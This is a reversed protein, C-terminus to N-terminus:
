HSNFKFKARGQPKTGVGQMPNQMTSTQRATESPSWLRMAVQKHSMRNKTPQDKLFVPEGKKKKSSCCCRRCCVFLLLFIGMAGSGAIIKNEMAWTKAKSFYDMAQQFLSKKGDDKPMRKKGAETRAYAGETGIISTISKTKANSGLIAIFEKGKENELMGM